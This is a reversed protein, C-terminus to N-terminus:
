TVEPQRISNQSMAQGYGFCLLVYDSLCIISIVAAPCAVKRSRAVRTQNRKRIFSHTEYIKKRLLKQSADLLGFTPQLLERKINESILIAIALRDYFARM